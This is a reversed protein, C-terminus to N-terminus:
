DTSQPADVGSADGGFRHRRHCPGGAVVVLSKKAACGDHAGRVDGPAFLTPRGSDVLGRGIGEGSPRGGSRLVTMGLERAESRHEIPHLLSADATALKALLLADNRDSKRENASIARLKRPNAVLPEYGLDKLLRTVWGSQVGAEMAVTRYGKGAFAARVGDPTMAFEFGDDLGGGAGERGTGTALVSTSTATGEALAEIVANDVADSMGLDDAHVILRM